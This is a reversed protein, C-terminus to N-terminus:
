SDTPADANGNLLEKTGFTRKSVKVAKPEEAIAVVVSPPEAVVVPPEPTTTPADVLRFGVLCLAKDVLAQRQVEVPVGATFVTGWLEHQHVTVDHGDEKVTSGDYVLWAM